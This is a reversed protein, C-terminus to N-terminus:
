RQDLTDLKLTCLSQEYDSYTNKLILKCANKQVRELDSKEDETISSFWVPCNFELISRIYMCYLNVLDQVAVPFEILKRIIILRANAKKVLNDTNKRWSFDDSVILGLIKTEKVIKLFTYNM